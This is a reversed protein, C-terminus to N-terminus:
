PAPSLRFRITGMSLHHDDAAMVRYDLRYEGPKLKPAAISFSKSAATPLPVVKQAKADGEKHLNLATLYAEESFNLVFRTPAVTLVSGDAPAAEALHAHAFAPVPLLALCYVVLALRSKM